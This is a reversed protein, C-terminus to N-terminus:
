VNNFAYYLKTCLECKVEKYNAFNTKTSDFENVFNCYPCRSLTYLDTTKIASIVQLQNLLNETENKVWEEDLHPGDGAHSTDFGVVWHEEDWEKDWGYVDTSRAYTIGGHVDVPISRYERGFWPHNSSKPIAVYGNGWGREPLYLDSYGNENLKPHIVENSIIFSIM